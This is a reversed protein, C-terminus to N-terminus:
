LRKFGPYSSLRDRDKLARLTLIKIRTHLSSPSLLTWWILISVAKDATRGVVFATRNWSSPPRPKGPSCHRSLTKKLLFASQPWKDASKFFCVLGVCLDELSAPWVPHLFLAWDNAFKKKKKTITALPTPTPCARPSTWRPSPLSLPLSDLGRCLSCGSTWHVTSVPGNMGKGTPPM